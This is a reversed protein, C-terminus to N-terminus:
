HRKEQLSKSAFLRLPQRASVDGEAPPSEYLLNTCPRKPCVSCTLRQAFGTLNSSATQAYPSGVKNMCRRATYYKRATAFRGVTERMARSTKVPIRRNRTYLPRCSAERRWAVAQSIELLAVFNGECCSQRMKFHRSRVVRPVALEESTTLKSLRRITRTFVM